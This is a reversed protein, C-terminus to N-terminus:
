TTIHFSNFQNHLILWLMCFFSLPYKINGFSLSRKLQIGNVFFIIYNKHTNIRVSVLSGSPIPQPVYTFYRKYENSYKDLTERYNKYEIFKGQLNTGIDRDKHDEGAPTKTNTEWMGIEFSYPNVRQLFKMLEMKEISTNM